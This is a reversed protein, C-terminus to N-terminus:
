PPPNNQPDHIDLNLINGVNTRWCDSGSVKCVHSFLVRDIKDVLDKLDQVVKKIESWTYTLDRSTHAIENRKDSFSTLLSRYDKRGKKSMELFVDSIGFRFFLREINKVSPYKRDKIHGKFSKVKKVQHEEDFLAPLDCLSSYKKIVKSEDGSSFFNNFIHKQACVASWCVLENPVYRITMGLSSLMYIWDTLSDKIYDELAASSQFITAKYVVQQINYDVKNKKVSVYRSNSSFEHVDKEFVKRALSKAYPM